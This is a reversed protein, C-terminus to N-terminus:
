RVRGHGQREGAHEREQEKAERRVPRLGAHGVPLAVAARADEADTTITFRGLDRASSLSCFYATGICELARRHDEVGLVPGAHQVGLPLDANPRRRTPLPPASRAIGLANRYGPAKRVSGSGRKVEGGGAKGRRRSGLAICIMRISCICIGATKASSIYTGCTGHKTRCAGGAGRAGLESPSIKGESSEPPSKKRQGESHRSKGEDRKSERARANRAHRGTGHSGDIAVAGDGREHNRRRGKRHRDRDKGDQSEEDRLLDGWATTM